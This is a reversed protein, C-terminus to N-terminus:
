GLIPLEVYNLIEYFVSPSLNSSTFISFCMSDNIYTLSFNSNCTTVSVHFDQFTDAAVRILTM